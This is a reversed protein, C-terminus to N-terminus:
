ISYILTYRVMNQETLFLKNEQIYEVSQKHYKVVTEFPVRYNYEPLSKLDICPVKMFEPLSTNTITIGGCYTAELWGINSKAKNFENDILPFVLANHNANYLMNLFMIVDTSPNSHEISLLSKILYSLEGYCTFLNPNEDILNGLLIEEDFLDMEHTKSGRYYYDTGEKYKTPKKHNKWPYMIDNHANPIVTIRLNYPILEEKIRETSVTIIDAWAAIQNVRAQCDQYYKYAPNHEPVHTLLDDYDVWVKKNYIKLQHVMAWELESAPRQVFVIDFPYVTAWNVYEPDSFLTVEIDSFRRQIEALPVMARYYSTADSINPVYALIRKKNFM